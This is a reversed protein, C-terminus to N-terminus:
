IHLWVQTGSTQAQSEAARTGGQAETEGDGCYCSCHTRTSRSNAQLTLNPQPGTASFPPVEPHGSHGPSVWAGQRVGCPTHLWRPLRGLGVGVGPMTVTAGLLVGLSLGFM